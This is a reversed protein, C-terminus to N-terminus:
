TRGWGFNQDWNAARQDTRQKKAARYEDLDDFERGPFIKYNYWKGNSKSRAGELQRPVFRPKKTPPARSAEPVMVPPDPPEFSPKVPPPESLPPQGDRESQQM